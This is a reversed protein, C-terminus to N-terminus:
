GQVPVCRRLPSLEVVNDRMPGYSAFKVPIPSHAVIRRLQAEPNDAQDLCTVALVPDIDIGEAKALDREISERMLDLDLDGFRLKGQWDNNVNTADPFSVSPDESPFPGAGHRTMYWRTVYIPRLKTIGAKPAQRVVNQLGTHSHTVHPFFEHNQDLLLGQAGEFLVTEYEAGLVALSPPVTYTHRDRDMTKYHRVFSEFLADSRLIELCWDSPTEIGLEELRTQVYQHRIKQVIEELISPVQIHLAGTAFGEKGSRIVTEHIGLGCSGHRNGERQNEVEHNILVDYPTSLLANPHIFCKFDLDSYRAAVL